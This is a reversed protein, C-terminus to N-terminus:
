TAFHAYRPPDAGGATSRTSTPWRRDEEAETKRPCALRCRAVTPPGGDETARGYAPSTGELEKGRGRAPRGVADGRGRGRLPKPSATPHGPSPPIGRAPPEGHLKPSAADLPEGTHTATRGSASRNVASPLPPPTQAAVPPLPAPPPTHIAAADPSDGGADFQQGVAM